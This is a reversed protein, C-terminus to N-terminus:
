VITLLSPQQAVFPLRPCVGWAVLLMRVSVVSSACVLRAHVVGAPEAAVSGVTMAVPSGTVMPMM